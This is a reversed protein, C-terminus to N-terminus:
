EHASGREVISKLCLLGFAVDADVADGHLQWVTRDGVAGYFPRVQEAVDIGIKTHRVVFPHEAARQTKANWERSGAV